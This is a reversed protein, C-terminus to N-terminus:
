VKKGGYLVDFYYPCGKVIVAGPWTQLTVPRQKEKERGRFTCFTDILVCTM